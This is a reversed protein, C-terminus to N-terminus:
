SIGALLQTVLSIGGAAIGAAPSRLATGTQLAFSGATMVSAALREGPTQQKHTAVAGSLAGIHQLPYSILELDWVADQVEYKLNMDLYDQYATLALRSLDAQGGVGARQEQLKAIQLQSMEIALQTASQYREREALLDLRSSMDNLQDARDRGMAALMMGFQTTLAGGADWVGFANRSVERLYQGRSRAEFAAAVADIEASTVLSTAATTAATVHAAVDTEPDLADLAAQWVDFADQNKDLDTSPDYAQVTSYPSGGVGSTAALFFDAVNGYRTYDSLAIGGSTPNSGTLLASHVHQLYTPYEDFTPPTGSM